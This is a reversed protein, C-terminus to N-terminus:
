ARDTRHVVSTGGEVSRMRHEAQRLAGQHEVKFRGWQLSQDERLLIRCRFEEEWALLYEACHRALQPNAAVLLAEPPSDGTMKRVARKLRMACADEREVLGSGGCMPCGRTMVSKLDGRTRRRTLEVLGLSTVGFVKARQRDGKLLERTTELLIQRHSEDDMDIFDVVVIGGIARLRLQRAIEEAAELNTKLITSKLDKAGTFKGTNVDIVTLAEAQDIVLYAGSPLWVKRELALEMEREVGYVEFVPTRGRYLTVEPGKGQSFFRGVMERVLDLEEPNDVVVEAVQHDLEDRLVRDLLGRDRYLLCPAPSRSAAACISDWLDMLDEVDSKLQDMHCGQAVTRVIIGFGQPRVERGLVKLRQREEEDEIRKSVGVDKGEPVLVLYRGPLSLKPTVRAGKGKRATKAVQVLIEEGPHPSRGLDELYLFGNRGDGLNVFAANMGPLVNDVRAKYIEGAKQREWMREIYIDLLRGSPDLVAVRSEESELTNAVITKGRRM